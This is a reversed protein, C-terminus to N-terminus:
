ATLYGGDVPLVAGTVFSAAPSCLFAIAAAVEEPEGFRQLPTRALIAGATAPDSRLPALLPTEIWGPAVANVRVADAAYAQALSKTLQVVGGKAASYAVRDGSGFYSYMSAVTVVSAGGAAALLPHALAVTRHVAGLQVALVTDFGEPTLEARDLSFGAAPVLVDLRDLRSVAEELQAADTVDVHRVRVDLEDPFRARHADLGVAHVTAGLTALVRATAAGIGSTGGTVLAVRGALLRAVFTSGIRGADGTGAAGM